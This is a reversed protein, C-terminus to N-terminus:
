FYKEEDDCREFSTQLEKQMYLSDIYNFDPDDTTSLNFFTNQVEEQTNDKTSPSNM